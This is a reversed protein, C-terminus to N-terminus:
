NEPDSYMYERVTMLMNARDWEDIDAGYKENFTESDFGLWCDGDYYKMIDVTDGRAPCPPTLHDTFADFLNATSTGKHGWSYVLGGYDYLFSHGIEHAVVRKFVEDAYWQSPLWNKGYWVTMDIIDWDSNHHTGSNFSTNGDGFEEGRMCIDVDKNLDGETTTVVVNRTVGMVSVPGSWYQEIGERALECLREFETQNMSDAGFCLSDSGGNLQCDIALSVRIDGTPGEHAESWIATEKPSGGEALAVAGAVFTPSHSYALYFFDGGVGENLNQDLRVFWQSTVSSLEGQPTVRLQYIGSCEGFSDCTNVDKRYCMTILKHTEWFFFWGTARHSLNATDFSGYHQAPDFGDPCLPPNEFSGSHLTIESIAESEFDRKYCLYVKSGDTGSNLDQRIMYYDSPCPEDDYVVTIETIPAFRDAEPPSSSLSQLKRWGEKEPNSSLLSHPSRLHNGSARLHRDTAKALTGFILLAALVIRCLPSHVHM